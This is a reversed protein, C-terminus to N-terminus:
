LIDNEFARKAKILLLYEVFIKVSFLNFVKMICSMELFIQQSDAGWFNISHKFVTITKEELRRLEWSM